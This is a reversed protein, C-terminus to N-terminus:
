ILFHPLQRELSGRPYRKSCRSQRSDDMKCVWVERCRLPLYIEEERCRGHYRTLVQANVGFNGLRATQCGATIGMKTADLFTANMHWIVRSRETTPTVNISKAATPICWCTWGAENRALGAAPSVPQPGPTEQISPIQLPIYAKPPM